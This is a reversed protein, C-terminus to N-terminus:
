AMLDSLDRDTMVGDSVAQIFILDIQRQHWKIAWEIDALKANPQTAKELKAITAKNM